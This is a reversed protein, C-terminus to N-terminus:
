TKRKVGGALKYRTERVAIKPLTDAHEDLCAQVKSRHHKVLSRLIWSVGKAILPSKEHKLRDVNALAARGLRPDDSERLPKVLLVLSARRKHANDSAAFASFLSEWTKWDSLIEEATFSSQCIVDVEAWGQAHDLWRDLCHPDLAKRLRPYVGLLLGIAAFENYTKCLSLSDLLATFEPLTLDAHRKSFDGAIKRLIATKLRYIPKTTGLYRFGQELPVNEDAACQHIQGAIERHFAHM